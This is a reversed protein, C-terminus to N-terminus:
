PTPEVLARGAQPGPTQDYVEEITFLCAVLEDPRLRHMKWAPLHDTHEVDSFFGEHYHTSHELDSADVEAFAEVRGKVQCSRLTPVDSGTVAIAGGGALHTLHPVDDVDLLLRSRGSGPDVTLGWGRASYPRGDVGVAGVILAAKDSLFRATDAELVV